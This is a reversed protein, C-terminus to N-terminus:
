LSWKSILMYLFLINHFYFFLISFIAALCTYYRCFIREVVKGNSWSFLTQDNIIQQSFCSLNTLFLLLCTTYLFKKM